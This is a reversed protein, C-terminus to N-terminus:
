RFKFKATHMSGDSLTVNLQRCTGAGASDTKWVYNYRDASVSKTTIVWRADINRVPGPTTFSTM